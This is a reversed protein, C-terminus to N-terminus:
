IDPRQSYLGSGSPTTRHGFGCRVWGGSTKQPFANPRPALFKAERLLTESLSATKVPGENTADLSPLRIQCKAVDQTQSIDQVEVGAVQNGAETGVRLALRNALQIPEACVRVSICLITM